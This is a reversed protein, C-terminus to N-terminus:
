CQFALIIILMTIFTTVVFMPMQMFTMSPSKLRIITVFFNVGTALTGIGSIQIAILYYNVGPGPSFEGALPAYNTWGAAPSGGVIFSLNFLLMGAVFLWFSINNLVPFAVDRAGIQLPIIINMLGIVLPMAMFIIMIVGHTSFIENYHNSELFPNDPVTLQIRLLIADIGGRVFMLVACILYMLGIKKHDVSMFWEKYLYGWLKFYTIAAIVGIVLFPASIQALTIMWNGKVILENWPFDMM